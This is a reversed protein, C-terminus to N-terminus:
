KVGGINYNSITKIQEILKDKSENNNIMSALNMLERQISFVDNTISAKPKLKAKAIYDRVFASRSKYGAEEVKADITARDTESVRVIFAGDKTRKKMM